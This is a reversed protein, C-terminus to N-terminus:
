AKPSTEYMVQSLYLGHGPATKGASERRKENLIVPMDEAQRRGKGVELLTGVMIRVMNYLFGNGRFVFRIEDGDELIDAKYITRVMDKVDTGAACFSTFDHTGILYSAAKRMAPLHLQYPYFVTHHRRFIDPAKTYLLRYYYEKEVADFRAHFARNTYEASVVFVDAPLHSNIAKPWKEEPISLATDFHMTQGLAHVSADTRGSAVVDTKDGKHIKELAKEIESQVTRKEPQRQWGSFYTGDYSVVAKIRQM